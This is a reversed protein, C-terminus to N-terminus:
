LSRESRDATDSERNESNEAARLAALRQRFPGNWFFIYTNYPRGGCFDITCDTM